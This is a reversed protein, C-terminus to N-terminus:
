WKTGLSITKSIRKRFSNEQHTTEKISIMDWLNTFVKQRINNLDLDPTLSSLLFLGEIWAVIEQALIEPAMQKSVLHEQQSKKIVIEIKKQLKGYHNQISEKLQSNQTSAEHFLHYINVPRHYPEGIFASLESHFDVIGSLIGELTDRRNNSSDDIRSIRSDMSLLIYDISEKFIEEKNKFHYYLSPKKIGIEESILALSTRDYGYKLFNKISSQIIKQKTDM